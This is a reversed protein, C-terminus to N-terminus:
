RQLTPLFTKFGSAGNISIPGFLEGDPMSQLKYWYQTGASASTDSWEYVAGEPQNAAVILPSITVFPKGLGTARQIVFGEQNQESGTAWRLQVNKGVREAVFSVLSVSTPAVYGFDYGSQHDDFGLTLTVDGPGSRVLSSSVDPAELSYVGPMLNDFSFLGEGDSQVAYLAGSTINKAQLSVGSIGMNEDSDHRGDGDVDIYLKGSMSALLVDGIDPVDTGQVLWPDLFAAILNFTSNGVGLRPTEVILYDGYLLSGFLYNGQEDSFTCSLFGDEPGLQGIVGRDRYLCIEVGQAGPEGLGHQGDLDYDYFVTGWVSGRPSYGFNIDGTEKGSAIVLAPESRSDAGAVWQLGATLTSEDVDFWYALGDPLAVQYRGDSATRTTTVLKDSTNPQFMQDGNDAYVNIVVNVLGSGTGDNALGDGNRDGWVLGGMNIDTLPSAASPSSFFVGYVVLALGVIMMRQLLTKKLSKSM